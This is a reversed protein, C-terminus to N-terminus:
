DALLKRLEKEAGHRGIVLVTDDPEITDDPGPVWTREGRRVAAVIWDPALKVDRLRRGIAAGRSGARVRYADVIKDAVATINQLSQDELITKIEEAALKSPNFVRDVGIHSALDLYTDSAVVAMVQTVGLTKALVSAIINDEEATRLAVFADARALHEEQAVGRDIPSACVVTVWKLKDALEHARRADTEFLRIAFNRDRLSECLWVATPTGGMLIVKRRGSAGDQFLQRAEQFAATNGVLVITDGRKLLTAADPIFADSGRIVTTIRVGSPLRLDVLQRDIAAAEDSLPLQQMQIAGGGFSEIAVAGPSRLNGAIAVATAHEPCILHDIGLAKEYDLGRKEYFAGQHVRAITRSAGLAKAISATLLNVEDNGTAAVVLDAEGAGAECLLQAEACNGALTAVDYSEAVAELRAPDTDLVTIDHDAALVEAAHSGVRGAGCVILKM